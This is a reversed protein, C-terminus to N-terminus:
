NLWTRIIYAIAFHITLKHINNISISVDNNTGSCALM